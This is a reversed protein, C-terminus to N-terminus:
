DGDEISSGKPFPKNFSISRVQRIQSLEIELRDLRKSNAETQAQLSGINGMQVCTPHLANERIFKYLDNISVELRQVDSVSAKSDEINKISAKISRIDDSTVTAQTETRGMFRSVYIAAGAVSTGVSLFVTVIWGVITLTTSM